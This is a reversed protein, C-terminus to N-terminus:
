MAFAIPKQLQHPTLYVIIVQFWQNGSTMGHGGLIIPLYNYNSQLFFFFFFYSYRPEWTYNPDNFAIYSSAHFLDEALYNALIQALKFYELYILAM